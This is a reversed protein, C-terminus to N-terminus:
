GTSTQPWSLPLDGDSRMIILRLLSASFVRTRCRRNPPRLSPPNSAFTEKLARVGYTHKTVLTDTDSSWSSGLPSLSVKLNPNPVQDADEDEAEAQEEDGEDEVAGAGNAAFASGAQSGPLMMIPASSLIRTQTPVPNTYNPTHSLNFNCPNQISTSHCLVM